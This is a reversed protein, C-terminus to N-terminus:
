YIYQKLSSFSPDLLINEQNASNIIEKIASDKNIIKAYFFGCLEHEYILIFRNDDIDTLGREGTNFFSFTDQDSVLNCYNLEATSINVLKCVEDVSTPNYLDNYYEKLDSFNPDNIIQEFLPDCDLGFIGKYYNNQTLIISFAQGVSLIETSYRINPFDTIRVYAYEGTPLAYISDSTIPMFEFDSFLKQFKHPLKLNDNPTVHGVLLNNKYVPLKLTSLFEVRHEKIRLLDNTINM